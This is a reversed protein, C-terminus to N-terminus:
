ILIDRTLHMISQWHSELRSFIKIYINHIYVINRPSSSHKSLKFLEELHQVAKKFYLYGEARDQTGSQTIHNTLTLNLHVLRDSEDVARRFHMESVNRYTQLQCFLAYLEHDQFMSETEPKLVQNNIKQEAWSQTLAYLVGATLGSFGWSILSKTDTRSLKLM